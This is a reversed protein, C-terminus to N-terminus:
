LKLFGWLRGVQSMNEGSCIGCASEYGWVLVCVALEFSLSAQM